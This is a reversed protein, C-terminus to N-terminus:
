HMPVPMGMPMSRGERPTFGDSPRKRNSGSNGKFMRLDYVLTAMFYPSLVNARVDEYYTNTINRSLASNQRLLDYATIKAELRKSKLFKKGLSANLLYYNQNFGDTMGTYNQYTFNTEMTFGRWFEWNLKANATQNIYRNEKNADLNNETFNLRAH